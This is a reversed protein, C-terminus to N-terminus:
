GRLRSGQVVGPVDVLLAPAVYQHEVAMWSTFSNAEYFTEPAKVWIIDSGIKARLEKQLIELQTDDMGVQGIETREDIGSFSDAVVLVHRSGRGYPNVKEFCTFDDILKDDQPLAQTGNDYLEDCYEMYVAKLRIKLGLATLARYLIADSGKLLSIIRDDDPEATEEALSPEEANHDNNFRRKFKKAYAPYGYALGFALVGGEPLLQPNQLLAALAKLFPNERVDIAHLPSQESYHTTRSRFIDYVLILRHGSEVLRIGHDVKSYFFTWPLVLTGHASQDNTQPWEIDVQEGGHQLLLRSSPTYLGILLTGLREDSKLVSENVKIYGGQTFRFSSLNRIRAVVGMKSFASIAALVGTRDDVPNFNLGFDSSLLVALGDVTPDQDKGVHSADCDNHLIDLDGEIVNRISFTKPGVASKCMLLADSVEEYHAGGTCYFTESAALAVALTKLAVKEAETVPPRQM